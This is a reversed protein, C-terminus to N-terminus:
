LRQVVLDPPAQGYQVVGAGIVLVRHEAMGVMLDLQKATFDARHLEQHGIAAPFEGFRDVGAVRDHLQLALGERAEDLLENVLQWTLRRGPNELYSGSGAQCRSM